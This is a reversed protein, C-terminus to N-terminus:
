VWPDRRVRAPSKAIPQSEARRALTAAATEFEEPLSGAMALLPRPHEAQVARTIVKELERIDM